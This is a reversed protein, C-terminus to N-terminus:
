AAAAFHTPLAASSGNSIIGLVEQLWHVLLQQELQRAAQQADAISRWSERPLFYVTRGKEWPLLLIGNDSFVGALPVELVVGLAVHNAQLRM